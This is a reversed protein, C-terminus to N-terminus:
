SEDNMDILLNTIVIGLGEEGVCLCRHVGTGFRELTNEIFFFMGNFLKNLNIRHRKQRQHSQTFPYLIM